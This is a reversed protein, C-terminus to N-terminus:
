AAHARGREYLRQLLSAFADAFRGVDAATSNWGLSVRIAGSALAAPVGMAALVHSRGVKGSSCASGSSVAVGGLDLAMLATEAKLGPVAFALTNPLREAAAGFVVADPALARVARAAEDRLGALRTAEGALDRAAQEAAVGFGVIAPVAETGGRLGREQGGGRVLALNPGVARPVVLLAGAGSLAGLKHASVTIADAGLEATALRLRGAAQVADVHLAAGAEQVIAAIAAIPQLVGTESNALQVSVLAPEASARLNAALHDLDLVGDPGVRIMQVVGAEFGHGSLVSPHETAGVLLRVVARGDPARLAGPRLAAGNAETGGSTFVLEAGPWGALAAVRARATEVAARGQRGERHVSSPNGCSFAQLCALAVEPRVPATANYDLYARTATMQIRLTLSHKCECGAVTIDPPDSGDGNGSLFVTPWM